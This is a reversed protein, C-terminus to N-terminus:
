IFAVSGDRACSKLLAALMLRTQRTACRRCRPMSRVRKWVCLTLLKQKLAMSYTRSMTGAEFGIREIPHPFAGLCAAIDSVECSLERELMVTGKADVICLACSRLSADLGAYYEM